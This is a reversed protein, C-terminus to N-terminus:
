RRAAARTLFPGLAEVVRDLVGAQRGAYAAAAESLAARAEPDALLAALSAQLQEPDAVQRLAGAAAMEESMQRFNAMHPGTLIACDLKAPELLNHGGITVLSGGLFVIDALRYWLGMEGLTDALFIDTDKSVTEGRSRQAVTLGQGALEARIEEGRAPHRPM